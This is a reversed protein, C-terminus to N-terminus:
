ASDIPIFAEVANKFNSFEIDTWQHSHNTVVNNIFETKFVDFKHFINDLEPRDLFQPSSLYLAQATAMYIMAENLYLTSLKENERNMTDEFLLDHAAKSSYYGQRILNFLKEKQYKFLDPKFEDYIDSM